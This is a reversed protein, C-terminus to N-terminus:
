DIISHALNILEDLNYIRSERLNGTPYDFILKDGMIDCLFPMYAITECKDNLLLGYRENDATVYQTVIYEGVQTVYTLYADKELECISKGSEADYVQPTGHLPSEIRLTDTFFEEYLSLDPQNGMTESVLHGDAASYTRIMGDNYIVDLSSGSEERRYQQDYLSDAEPISAEVIITGDISYLRFGNYYFLMVTKGDGSIRAEDHRYSPDYSFLEAKPHSDFRMIRLEPSDLSGIIAMGEAIQLFDSSHEKKYRSIINAFEDFFMFEDKSTMLTYGDCHAFCEVKEYTTVLAIQEGTVPHVKVVINDTQVYIGSKNAQVSFPSASSFGGTQCYEETDIVAFVSDFQNSASFALFQEYFGGEFHTYGSTDDFIDIDCDEDLLDYMYLSGDTFSVCLKTGDHNLAFLNDGPNAFSDNVAVRQYKDGFSIERIIYGNSADYISAFTEDKYVAAVITADASVAVTTSPKGTWVVIRDAIDYATIGAEGAYVIMNNNLYKVEALASRESKLTVIIEAAETNIVAVEYAYVVAATKGDPSIEMYLPAAPLEVTKHNKFGDSLDYVNLADTLSKQAEAIPSSSLAELAFRIANDVDGNRLCDASYEALTHANNLAAIRAQEEAIRAQEEARETQEDAVIVLEQAKKSQEEAIVSKEDAIRRQEQEMLRQGSFVTIAGILFLVSFLSATLTRTRIYKRTRLDNERLHKFAFLMEEASQWRLDHNPNMAKSIISAVAPSFGETSIPEVEAPNQAPRTGTIFHYLTAGLSYIDSRVTLLISKKESSGSSSNHQPTKEAITEVDTVFNSSYDTSVDTDPFQTNAGTVFDLGYHEPSAYGFSRGVAVAGEEGLALAINFDILCVDGQPKLMINSPKIDAHLIGHPPRSHLYVLAELLQCAWEIVQVQSFREGRKLLKDFSDGEIYDMVTYVTGDEEIFDFVQPIYSHSLNKLADVERRLVEPKTSLTRKDAKLVVKKNLRLHEALYVIGGGGSGIQTIIQYVGGILSVSSDM